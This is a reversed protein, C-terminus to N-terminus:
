EVVEMPSISLYTNGGGLIEGTSPDYDVHWFDCLLVKLKDELDRSEKRALVYADYEEFDTKTPSLNYEVKRAGEGYKYDKLLDTRLHITCGMSYHQTRISFKNNPFAKKLIAKMAKTTSADLRM